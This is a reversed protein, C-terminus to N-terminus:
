LEMGSRGPMRLDIVAYEPSDGECVSLAEDFGGATKVEYRRDRLARAPRERFLEDDDVVLILAGEAPCRKGTADENKVLPDPQM